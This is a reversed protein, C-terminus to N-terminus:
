ECCQGCAPFGGPVVGVTRLKLYAWVDHAPPRKTADEAMMVAFLLDLLSRSLDEDDISIRKGASPLNQLFEDEATTMPKPIFYAHEIRGAKVGALRREVSSPWNPRFMNDVMETMVLGLSFVDGSRGHDESQLAEPPAYLRTM